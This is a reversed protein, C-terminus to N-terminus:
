AGFDIRLQETAHNFRSSGTIGYAGTGAFELDEGLLLSIFSNARNGLSAATVTLDFTANAINQGADEVNNLNAGVTASAYAHDDTNSSDLAVKYAADLTNTYSSVVIRLAGAVSGCYEPLAYSLLRRYRASNNSISDSKGANSNAALAHSVFTGYPSDRRVYMSSSFSSKAWAGAIRLADRLEQWKAATIPQGVAPLGSFTFLGFGETTRIYNIHAANDWLQYVANTYGDIKTGATVYPYRSFGGGVMSNLLYLRRNYLGIIQNAGSSANLEAITPCDLSAFGSTDGAVMSLGTM